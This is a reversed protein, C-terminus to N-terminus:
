RTRAERAKKEAWAIVERRLYGRRGPSIEVAQPRDPLNYFTDPSINGHLRCAEYVDCLGETLPLPCLSLIRPPKTRNRSRGNGNAKKPVDEGGDLL